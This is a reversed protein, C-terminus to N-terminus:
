FNPNAQMYFIPPTGPFFTLIHCQSQTCLFLCGLLFFFPPLFHLEGTGPDGVLLMHSEGRTRTGRDDLRPVGGVIVMMVALKVIYMGYIQHPFCFFILGTSVKHRDLHLVFDSESANV